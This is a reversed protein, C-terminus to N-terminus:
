DGGLIVKAVARRGDEVVVPVVASRSGYRVDLRVAGPEVRSFTRRGRADAYADVRQVGDEGVDAWPVGSPQALRVTAFPMPRGGEDVVIAEIEGGEPERMEVRAEEGEVVTCERECPVM